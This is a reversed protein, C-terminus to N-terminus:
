LDENFTGGHLAPSKSKHVNLASDLGLTTLVLRLLIPVVEEPGRSKGALGNYFEFGTLAMLTQIQEEQSEIPIAENLTQLRALLMEIPKYRRQNRAAIAAAFEQDLQVFAGLRRHLARESEWFNCFLKLYAELVDLPDTHSFVEPLIETFRARAGIEDFLAELLGRKSGFHHYVTMRTVGAQLAVAEISFGALANEGLIIARAATTIRVRTEEMTAGRQGMRYSRPYKRPLTTEENPVNEQMLIENYLDDTSDGIDSACESYM